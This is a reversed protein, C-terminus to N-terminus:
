VKFDKKRCGTGQENRVGRIFLPKPYPTHPKPSSKAEFDKKGAAQERNM